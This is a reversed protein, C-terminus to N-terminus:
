APRPYARVARDGFVPEGRGDNKRSAPFPWSQVKRIAREIADEAPLAKVIRALKKEESLTMTRSQGDKMHAGANLELENKSISRSSEHAFNVQTSTKIQYGAFNGDQDFVEHWLGSALKDNAEAATVKRIVQWGLTTVPPYLDYRAATLPRV